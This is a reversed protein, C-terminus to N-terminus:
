GRDEIWDLMAYGERLYYRATNTAAAGLGMMTSIPGSIFGGSFIRVIVRGNPNVLAFGPQTPPMTSPSIVGYQLDVQPITYTTTGDGSLHTQGFWWNKGHVPHPLGNGDLNYIVVQVPDIQPNEGSQAAAYPVSFSLLLVALLVHLAATGACALARVGSVAHTM